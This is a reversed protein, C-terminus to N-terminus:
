ERFTQNKLANIELQMQEMRQELKIVYKAIEVASALAAGGYNVSLVGSPDTLISNPMLLQLSQASVGDQTLAQDTRDYTGNRVNALQKVFDSAYERWNTKFREDSYATVNGATTMNFSHDLRWGNTGNHFGIDNSAENGFYGFAWSGAYTSLNRVWRIGGWTNQSPMYFAVGEGYSESKPNIWLNGNLYAARTGNSAPDVYYTTDGSDYFIPARYDGSTTYTGTGSGKNSLNAFDVSGASDAYGAAIKIWSGLSNGENYRVSMYPTSATRPIAIYM